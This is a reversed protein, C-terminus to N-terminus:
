EPSCKMPLASPRSIGNDSCMMRDLEKRYTAPIGSEPYYTVDYSGDERTSIHAIYTRRSQSAYVAFGMRGDACQHPVCGRLTVVYGNRGDAETGIFSLGTVNLYPDQLTFSDWVIGVKAYGSVVIIRWGSSSGRSRGVFIFDEPRGAASPFSVSRDIALLHKMALSTAARSIAPSQPRQAGSVIPLLCITAAMLVRMKSVLIQRM